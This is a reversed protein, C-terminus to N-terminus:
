LRRLLDRLYAAAKGIDERLREGATEREITLPARYGSDLLVRLLEPFHVDGEGIPVERGWEQGPADAWLADKCHISRVHHALRRAAAVPDGKGYLIMNAPDFNVAVNPEGLQNLISLLQDATEQGTELHLALGLKRCHEALERTVALITGYAPSNREDPIFGLHLGIAPAGLWSALDAIEKAKGLREERFEAPVLGVTRAVTPIDSYDEGEFLCFVVTVRVGYQRLVEALWQRQSPTPLCSSHIALHCTELGIERAFALWDRLDSHARLFIGLPLQHRM